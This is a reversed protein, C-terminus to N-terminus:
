EGLKEVRKDILLSRMQVIATENLKLLRESQSMGMRILEANISELNALCVLQTVNAYDRMNGAKNKNIAKWNKATMGFLAMNLVDAENAYVIEADQKSLKQPLVISEKIADTHIKYNIKTLMRKADWGLTLKENEEVKLRQFEKILYLKFEPSIWTAFEFAIDKHAFTGGGYRGAKSTIGIAKTKEIWKQPTLVFANTGAENKFTDFEVRNFNDNHLQEWIGLFDVTYRTKMWNQIAFRPENINKFRAIDTLSIYDDEKASLSVTILQNKIKIKKNTM